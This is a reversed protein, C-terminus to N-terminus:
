FHGQLLYLDQIKEMMAEVLWEDASNFGCIDEGREASFLGYAGNEKLFLLVERTALREDEASVYLINRGEFRTSGSRGIIYIRSSPPPEPGFSLFIQRFVEPRPGAAIALGRDDKSGYVDQAVAEVVRRFSKRPIIFHGHRGLDRRIRSFYPIEEGSGLRDYFSSKGVLIDFADWFTKEQLRLRSLPSRQQRAYGEEATRKLDPYTKGDRPFTAPLFFSQLRIDGGLFSIASKGRIAKRLRRIALMTGFADTEPLVICFRDTDIRAILDSDRLAKRIEEVVGALAGIVISERTQEVLQAFNGAVLLIVSLPRRFRGSKYLEKELYDKLFASSYASTESDRLSVKGVRSMRDANRLSSAAYEAITRAVFREREGYGRGNRREGLKVLGIPSENVILPVFLVPDEEGGRGAASGPPQPAFPKGKWILEAWETHSLFFRSGEQAINLLGRVSAIKMENPDLPSALWVVCSEAGVEHIFTDTIQVLLKEEDLATVIKLCQQYLSALSYYEISESLLRDTLSRDEGDQPSTTLALWRAVKHLPPEGQFLFIPIDDALGTGLAEILGSGACDMSVAVARFSSLDGRRDSVQELTEYEFAMVRNFITLSVDRSVRSANEVVLVRSAAM